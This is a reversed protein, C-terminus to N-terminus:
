DKQRRKKGTGEHCRFQWYAKGTGVSIGQVIEVLALDPDECLDRLFSEIADPPLAEWPPELSGFHTEILLNKNANGVLGLNDSFVVLGSICVGPDYEPNRWLVFNEYEGPHSLITRDCLTGDPRFFVAFREAIGTIKM